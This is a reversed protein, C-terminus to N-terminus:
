TAFAERILLRGRATVVAGEDDDRWLGLDRTILSLPEHRLIGDGLDTPPSQYFVLEGADYRFRFTHRPLKSMAVQEHPSVVYRRVLWSVTQGLTPDTELHASLHDAFHLLGDQHEGDISAVQRWEPPMSAADPLRRCLELLLSLADLVLRSEKARGLL